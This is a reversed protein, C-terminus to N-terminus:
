EITIEKTKDKSLYAIYLIGYMILCLVYQCFADTYSVCGIDAILIAVLLAKFYVTFKNDIRKMFLMKAIYGYYLVFGVIGGSVLMEVYNNHAYVERGGEADYISAFANLGYGLIPKQWFAAMGVEIMEQRTIASKDGGDNFMFDLMSEFRYGVHEYLFPVNYLAYLAVILLLAAVLTNRVRRSKSSRMMYIIGTILIILISKRSGSAVATYVFALILVLSIGKVTKSSNESAVFCLYFTFLAGFAAMLGINNANWAANITSKGLRQGEELSSVDVVSHVYLLTTVCAVVCITIIRKINKPDQSCKMAILFVVVSQLIYKKIAVFLLDLSIAYFITFVFFVVLLMRWVLYSTFAIRRAMLEFLLAVLCVAFPFYYLPVSDTYLLEGNTACVFAIFLAAFSLADNISLKRFKIM